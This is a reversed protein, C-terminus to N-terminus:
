GYPYPRPTGVGASGESEGNCELGTKRWDTTTTFTCHGTHSDEVEQQLDSTIIYSSLTLKNLKGNIHTNRLSTQNEKLEIVASVYPNFKWTRPRRM